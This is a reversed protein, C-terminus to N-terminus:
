ELLAIPADTEREYDLPARDAADTRRKFEYLMRDGNTNARVILCQALHRPGDYLDVLGRLKPVTALDVSFGTEWCDIISYVEDGIHVCLRNRQREAKKQATRMGDMVEKSFFSEMGLGRVSLGITFSDWFLDLGEHDSLFM